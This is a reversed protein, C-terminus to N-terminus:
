ELELWNFYYLMIFGIVWVRVQVLDSYLIEVEKVIEVDVCLQENFVEIEVFDNKCGVVFLLVM